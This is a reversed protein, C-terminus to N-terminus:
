RRVEGDGIRCGVDSGAVPDACVGVVSAQPVDVSEGRLIHVREGPPTRGQFATQRFSLASCIAFLLIDTLKLWFNKSSIRLLAPTLDSVVSAAFLCEGVRPRGSRDFCACVAVSKAYLLDFLACRVVTMTTPM